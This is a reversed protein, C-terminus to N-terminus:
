GASTEDRQRREVFHTVNSERSMRIEGRHVAGEAIAIHPSTLRGTVRGSPLIELQNVATVNGEVEGAVLVNIASINGRWQSGNGVVLSADLQCNGDISGHAILDDKGSLDGKLATEAGITTGYRKIRDFVRRQKDRSM